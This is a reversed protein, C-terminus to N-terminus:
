GTIVAFEPGVDGQEQAKGACPPMVGDAEEHGEMFQFLMHGAKRNFVDAKVGSHIIVGSVAQEFVSIDPSKDVQIIFAATRFGDRVGDGNVFVPRREALFLQAHCWVTIIFGAPVEDPAAGIAFVVTGFAFVAARIGSVPPDDLGAGFPVDPKVGFDRTARIGILLNIVLAGGRFTDVVADQVIVSQVAHEDMRLFMVRERRGHDSYAKM